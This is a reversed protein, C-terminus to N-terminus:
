RRFSELKKGMGSKAIKELAAKEIQRIRERTLGYMKGVEDLTFRDEQDIGYRLRIIENERPTLSALAERIKGRLEEQDTLSDPAPTTQDVVFDLFTTQEGKEIPSDLSTVEKAVYLLLHIFNVSINSKKAIEYPTPKRGMEQYLLSITSLVKKEQELLYVPIKIIRTQDILSRGLAQHIWWSAYTSFKFGKKHDFRDVARMLGINGAQILDTFPLERSVYKKAISVVLRLNAKVFRDKLRKATDSYVKMLATLINQQRSGKKGVRIKQRDRYRSTKEEKGRSLSDQLAKIEEIKSQCKRIKASIEIEDKRTLLREDRMAKFYPYLIRFQEDPTREVKDKSQPQDLEIGLKPEVMHLVSTDEIDSYSFVEEDDQITEKFEMENIKM